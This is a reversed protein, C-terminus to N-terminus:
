LTPHQLDQSSIFCWCHGDECLKLEKKRYQEMHHTAHFFIIGAMLYFAGCQCYSTVSNHTKGMKHNCIMFSFFDVGNIRVWETM